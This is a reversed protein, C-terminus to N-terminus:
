ILNLFHWVFGPDMLLYYILFLHRFVCPLLLVLTVFALIVGGVYFLGRFNHLTLIALHNVEQYDEPLSSLDKKFWIKELKLLEGQERLKAIERSIDHVLKSGKPFAFGFGNTTPKYSILSYNSGYKALFLKIYPFEDMIAVVGGKKNLAKAYEALSGYPKFDPDNLKSKNVLSEDIFSGAHYGIDLGSQTLRIQQVTLMSSLAAGFCAVMILVIFLWVMVLLRSLNSSLETGQFTTNTPHEIFWITVGLTLFSCTTAVWMYMDLPKLFWWLKRQPARAIVGVGIDTFSITFDVYKSRNATITMDGVVADYTKNYVDYIIRNYAETHPPKNVPAPVFVYSLRLGKVAAKFVDICFGKAIILSKNQPDPEVSLLDEFGVLTPVGIRLTKNIQMMMHKPPIMSGGPWIIGKIGNISYAHHHNNSPKSKVYVTIGDDETWFGVRKASRGIVNVIELPKSVSKGNVIHFEGSLGKFKVKLLEKLVLLGDKSPRVEAREVATAVASIADYALMNYINPNSFSYENRWRRTFNQLQTSSPIHYRLGLVGQFSDVVEEDLELPDFFNMTKDTVIWAYGQTMLGMRKAYVLLRFALAHSVHIIFVREQLYSLKHLEDAIQDDTATSSIVSKYSIRINKEQFTDTIYPVSESGFENDEHVLVVDVWKFSEVIAAIGKWQITEDQTIQLLYPHATSNFSPSSTLSLVPVKTKDGLIRLFRAELPTELGIITQVQHNELFQFAALLAQLPDGKSDRTRLVIRTRYNNNSAYFDSIAYTMFNYISKGLWSEMDLVIGVQIM